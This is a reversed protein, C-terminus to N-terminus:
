SWSMLSPQFASSGSASTLRAQTAASSIHLILGHGDSRMTNSRAAASAIRKAPRMTTARCGTRLTRDRTTANKAGRPRSRGARQRGEDRRDLDDDVRARDEDEEEEDQHEQVDAVHGRVLAPPRDLRHQAAEGDSAEGARSRPVSRRLPEGIGEGVGTSGGASPSGAASACAGTRRSGAGSRPRKPAAAPPARRPAEDQGAALPERSRSSGAKRRAGRTPRATRRDADGAREQAAVRDLDEQRDFHHHVRRSATSSRAACSRRSSTSSSTRSPREPRRGGDAAVGIARPSAGQPHRQPAHQAGAEAEHRLSRAPGGRGAARSRRDAGRGEGAAELGLGAQRGGRRARQDGPDRGADARPRLGRAGLMVDEPLELAESEVM